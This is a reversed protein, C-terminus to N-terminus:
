KMKKSCGNGMLLWHNHNKVMCGLEYQYFGYTVTDLIWLITIIVFEATPTSTAGVDTVFTVVNSVVLTGDPKRVHFSNESSHGLSQPLLLEVFRTIQQWHYPLPCNLHRMQRKRRWRSNQENTAIADRITFINPRKQTM